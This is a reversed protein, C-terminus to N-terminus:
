VAGDSFSAIPAYRAVTLDSATAAAATSTSFTIRDTTAVVTGGTGYGGAIYGYLAGDSNGNMISRAVSLNAATQAATASTSFTTRETTTVPVGSWTLGGCTYGYLANDSVTAPDQKAVALNSTTSAAITSSSFTIRDVTTLYTGSVTQGGMFYGYISADSLSGGMRAIRGISLTAAIGASVGTTFTTREVSDLISFASNYGGAVYAYLTSDSVGFHNYRAATLAGTAYAASVSTAFTVRDCTATVVSGNYRGKAYGYTVTDSGCSGAFGQESADSITSAAYAGTSFTIRETSTTFVGGTVGGIEYGYVSSKQLSGLCFGSM